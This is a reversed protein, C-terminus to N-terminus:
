QVSGRLSGYFPGSLARRSLATPSGGVEYFVVTSLAWSNTSTARTGSATYTGATAISRYAAGHYHDLNEEQEVWGTGWTANSIVTEDSLAAVMLSANNGVTINGSSFDTTSAVSTANTVSEYAISDAASFELVGWGTDSGPNALSFTSNGGTASLCYFIKVYSVDLSAGTLGVWTGGGSVSTAATSSAQAVFAVLLNGSGVGNLTLDNGNYADISQIFEFSM